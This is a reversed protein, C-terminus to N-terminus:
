ELQESTVVSISAPAKAVSQARTSATVVVDDVQSAQQSQAFVLTPAAACASALLLTRFASIMAHEWCLRKRYQLHNADAVQCITE